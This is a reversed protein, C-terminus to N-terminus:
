SILNDIMIVLVFTFFNSKCMLSYKQLMWIDLLLSRMTFTQKLVLGGNQLTLNMSNRIVCIYTKAANDDHLKAKQMQSSSLNTYTM